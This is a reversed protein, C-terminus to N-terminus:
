LELRVFHHFKSFELSYDELHYCINWYMLTIKNYNLNPLIYFKVSILSIPDPFNPVTNKAIYFYVPKTSEILLISLFSITLDPKVYCITRYILICLESFWGFM